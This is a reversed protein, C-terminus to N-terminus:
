AAGSSELSEQCARHLWARAVRWQRVVSARSIGLVAGTEELSLGAFYRLEVLRAKQADVEALAALSEDLAILEAPRDIALGGELLEIPVHKSGGGRKAYLQRRANDVLLRRMTKAAIAYFHTRSEWDMRNQDVLRFYAEHVIDTPQLGLGSRENSLYREAIRRLEDYVLPLLRDFSAADGGSWAALLDTIDERSVGASEPPSPDVSEM